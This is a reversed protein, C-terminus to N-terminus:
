RAREAHRTRWDGSEIPACGDVRSLPMLYALVLADDALHIPSRQYVRPHGELRDLEALTAEDVEYIEGTIAQHGGAVLAPCYGLDYLTFVPKTLADGVFVSRAVLRHNREGRRLTGYVFVRTRTPHERDTRPAAAAHTPPKVAADRAARSRTATVTDKSVRANDVGVRRPKGASM